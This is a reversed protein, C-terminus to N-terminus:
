SANEREERLKKRLAAYWEHVSGHGTNNEKEWKTKSFIDCALKIAWPEKRELANWLGSLTLEELDKFKLKSPPLKKEVGVGGQPNEPVPVVERQKQKKKAYMYAKQELENKCAARISSGGAVKADIEAERRPSIM